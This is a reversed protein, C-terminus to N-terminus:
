APPQALRPKGISLASDASRLLALAAEFDFNGVAQAVADYSAGLAARLAKAHLTCFQLSEADDDALLRELQVLLEQGAMEDEGAVATADQTPAAAASVEGM